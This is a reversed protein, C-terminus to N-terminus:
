HEKRSCKRGDSPGSLLPVHSSQTNTKKQSDKFAAPIM